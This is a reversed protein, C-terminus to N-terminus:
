IITISTIWNHCDPLTRLVKPPGDEALFAGAAPGREATASPDRLMGSALTPHPHCKIGGHGGQAIQM